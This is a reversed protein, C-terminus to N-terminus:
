PMNYKYTIGSAGSTVICGNAIIALLATGGPRSATCFAANYANLGIGTDSEGNCAFAVKEAYIGYGGGVNVGMCHNAITAYLGYGSGNNYGFCNNATTASLGKGSGSTRGYCNEATTAFLGGFGGSSAGYCNQASNADIGVGGGSSEGRCDSVQEGFIANGGCDVAVCNKITSGGIGYSGVTRVTCAEVVPSNATNLYIGFFLCGTVSVGSVRTNAPGNIVYYIGHMFGSGSFVGSGNNTVGSEIFGHEITLNRLGNNILIATGTASAATSKITWGNLDLTVGNTAITIADGSSVTLNTTL